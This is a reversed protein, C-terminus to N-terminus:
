ICKALQSLVYSTTWFNNGEVELKHQRTLLEDILCLKECKDQENQIREFYDEFLNEFVARISKDM